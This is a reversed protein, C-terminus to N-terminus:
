NCFIPEPDNLYIDQYANGNYARPPTYFVSFMITQGVYDPNRFNDQLGATVQKTSLRVWIKNATMETELILSYQAYTVQNGNENRTRETRHVGCFKGKIFNGNPLDSVEVKPFTMKQTKLSEAPRQTNQTATATM